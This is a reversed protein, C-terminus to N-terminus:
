AVPQIVLSDPNLEWCSCSVKRKEMIDLSARPGVWGGTCHTGLATEGHTIHYSHSALWEGDDLALTLFPPANGGSGM